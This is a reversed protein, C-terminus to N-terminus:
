KEAADVEIVSVTVDDESGESRAREVIRKALTDSSEEGSTSLMGVLWACDERGGSVGDSIMIIRDGVKADFSLRKLDPTSIIGLPITKANLKFCSNGRKVYTPAAGSKIVSARGSLLDLELLDVTASYEYRAGGDSESMFSNLLKISTESRNNAKLMKELFMACIRSTFAAERGAGMGDSILSYFRDSPSEFSIATDGCVSGQGEESATSSAGYRVARFRRRSSVTMDFRSGTPTFTPDSLQVGAAEELRSRLESLKLRARSPDLGKVAISKRRGGYAIVGDFGYRLKQLTESVREACGEDIIYDERGSELAESLIQSVGDYDLAFVGTRDCLLAHETLRACSENVDDIMKPLSECRRRLYEPASSIDTRAKMHLDSAIRNLMDLTSGYEVGWCLERRPCNSCYGDFVRDCTQRIDLSSPRRLRDSLNYFAEALESFMQSLRRMGEEDALSIQERLLSLLAADNREDEKIFEPTSTILSLRDAAGFLMAGCLLAPLLESLASFGNVYVGWIMGVVCGAVSAAIPSVNWLAGAAAAELVFLPAYPPSFALGLCLGGLCAYLIGRRRCICLTAFFSILAGVCIGLINLDKTAYVVSVLLALGGIDHLRTGKLDGDFYAAFLFTASPAAVMSFFLGFLDYYRFGGAVISYLSLCFAATAAATMRLYVSESFLARYVEAPSRQPRSREKVCDSALRGFVRVCVTVLYTVVCVAVDPGAPASLLLGVLIYPLHRDAACLLAIGLPFTSFLLECGGLLYAAIGFATGVFLGVLRENARRKDRTLSAFFEKFGEQKKRKDIGVDRKEQM